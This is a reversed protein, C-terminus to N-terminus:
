LILLKALCSLCCPRAEELLSSIDFDESKREILERERIEKQKEAAEELLERISKDSPYSSGSRAYSM